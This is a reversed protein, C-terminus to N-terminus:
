VVGEYVSSLALVLSLAVFGVVISIIGIAMPELLATMRKMRDRLRAEYNDAMFGFMAGIAGSKQGARLLSLREPQLLRRSLSFPM